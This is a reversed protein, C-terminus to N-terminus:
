ATKQYFSSLHRWLSMVEETSLGWIKIEYLTSLRKAKRLVAKHKIQSLWNRAVSIKEFGVYTCQRKGQPNTITALYPALLCLRFGDELSVHTVIINPRAIAQTM